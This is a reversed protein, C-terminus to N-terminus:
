RSPTRARARAARLHARREPAVRPQPQQRHAVDDAVAGVGLDDAEAGLGARRDDARDEQGVGESEHVDAYDHEGDQPPAVEEEEPEGPEDRHGAVRHQHDRQGVVDVDGRAGREGGGAHRGGLESGAIRSLENVPTKASRHFRLRMRTTALRSWARTTEESSSTPSPQSQTTYTTAASWDVAAANECGASDASSGVSTGVSISTCALASLTSLLRSPRSAPTGRPAARSDHHPSSATTTTSAASTGPRPRARRVSRRVPGRGAEPRLDRPAASRARTSRRGAPPGRRGSWRRATRPRRASSRRRCSARGARRATSGRRGRRPRPPRPAASWSESARPCRRSSQDDAGEPAPEGRPRQHAPPREIAPTSSSTLNLTGTRSHSATAGQRRDAADGGDGRRDADLGQGLFARGLVDAAPHEARKCAEIQSDLRSPATTPPTSPSTSDTSTAM